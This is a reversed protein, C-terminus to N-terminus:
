IEYILRGSANYVLRANLINMCELPKSLPNAPSVYMYNIKFFALAAPDCTNVIKDYQRQEEEHGRFTFYPYAGPTFRGTHRVFEEPPPFFIDKLTTNTQIWKYATADAPDPVPLCTILPGISGFRDLNSVAFITQSLLGSAGLLFTLILIVYKRKASIDVSERMIQMLWVGSLLAFLPVALSFFRSMEWPRVPYRFLFPVAFAGLGALALLLFSGARRKYFYWIAPIILIIPLGFQVFFEYSFLKIFTDSNDIKAPNPALNLIMFDNVSQIPVIADREQNNIISSLIGGQFLALLLGVTMVSLTITIHKRTRVILLSLGFAIFLISFYTEINLASFGYAIGASIAYIWSRRTESERLAMFYLFLVLILVPMGLALSHNNMLFIYSTNLKPFALDTVWKWFAPINEHLIYRRWLAPIGKTFFNIWQLGDGYLFLAAGVIAAWYSQCLFYVLAFLMLFLSGTFLFIQIDYALWIPMGTLISLNASMLEAGYHYSLIKDPASPDMVPFNGAVITSALPMHGMFFDDLALSKIAVLGSLSSIAIAVAVLVSTKRNGFNNSTPTADRTKLLLFLSAILMFLLVAWVASQVPILYSILNLFFINGGLGILISLPLLQYFERFRLLFRSICYGFLMCVALYGLLQIAIFM